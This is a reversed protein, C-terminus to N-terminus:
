PAPNALWLAVAAAIGALVLVLAPTFVRARAAWDPRKAAAVWAVVEDLELAAIEDANLLRPAMAALERGAVSRVEPWLEAAAARAAPPGGGGHGALETIFSPVRFREIFFFQSAGSVLTGLTLVLFYPDLRRLAIVTVLYAVAFGFASLRLAWAVRRAARREAQWAARLASVTV